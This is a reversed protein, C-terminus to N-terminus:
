HAKPVPPQAADWLAVLRRRFAGPKEAFVRGSIRQAREAHRNRRAAAHDSIPKRWRALPAHPAVFGKLVALDNAKGLQARLRQLESEFTRLMRPWLPEIIEIQYRLAVVAKRLEHLDDDTALNWDDPQRQRTRRYSRALRTAIDPFAVAELPWKATLAEARAIADTLRTRAARDLASTEAAGRLATLKNDIAHRTRDAFGHPAAQTTIASARSAGNRSGNKAINKGSGNKKDQKAAAKVIDAFADRAAQADRSTGLERTLLSAERRLDRAEDGVFPEVLRLFARWRKMAVRFEHIARTMEAAPAAALASKASNLIDNAASRLANPGDSPAKQVPDMASPVKALRQSLNVFFPAQLAKGFQTM